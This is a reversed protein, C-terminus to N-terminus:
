SRKELQAEHAPPPPRTELHVLGNVVFDHSDEVLACPLCVPPELCSLVRSSKKYGGRWHRSIRSPCSM